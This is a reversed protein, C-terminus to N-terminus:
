AVETKQDAIVDATIDVVGKAAEITNLVYEECLEKAMANLTRRPSGDHTSNTRDYARYSDDTIAAQIVDLDAVVSGLETFRIVSSAENLTQELAAGNGWVCVTYHADDHPDQSIISGTNGNLEPFESEADRTVYYRTALTQTM